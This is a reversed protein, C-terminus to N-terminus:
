ELEACSSNTCGANNGSCSADECSGNLFSPFSNHEAGAIIKLFEPDTILNRGFEDLIFKKHM